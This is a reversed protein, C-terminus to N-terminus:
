KNLYKICYTVIIYIFAINIVTIDKNKEHDPDM